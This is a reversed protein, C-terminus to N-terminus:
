LSKTTKNKNTGQSESNFVPKRSDAASPAENTGKGPQNLLGKYQAPNSGGNYPMKMQGSGPMNATAKRM